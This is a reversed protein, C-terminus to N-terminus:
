VPLDVILDTLPIDQIGARYAHDLLEENGDALGFMFCEQALNLMIADAQYWASLPHMEVPM